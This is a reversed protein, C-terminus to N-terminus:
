IEGLSNRQQEHESVEAIILVCLMKTFLEKGGDKAYDDILLKTCHTNSKLFARSNDSNLLLFHILDKWQM